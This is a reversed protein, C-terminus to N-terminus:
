ECVLYVTCVCWTCQECLVIGSYLCVLDVIYVYWVMMIYSEM